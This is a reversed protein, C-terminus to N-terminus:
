GGEFPRSAVGLTIIDFQQYDRRVINQYKVLSVTSLEAGYGNLSVNAESLKVARVM